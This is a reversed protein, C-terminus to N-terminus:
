LAHSSVLIEVARVPMAEWAAHEAERIRRRNELEEKAQDSQM